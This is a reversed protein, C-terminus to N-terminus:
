LRLINLKEFKENSKQIASTTWSLCQKGGHTMNADKKQQTEMIVHGCSMANSAQPSAAGEQCLKKEIKRAKKM